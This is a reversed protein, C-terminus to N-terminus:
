FVVFRNTAKNSRLYNNLEDGIATLELVVIHNDTNSGNIFVKRYSNEWILYVSSVLSPSAIGISYKVTYILRLLIRAFHTRALNTSIKKVLHRTKDSTPCMTRVSLVGEVDVYLCM